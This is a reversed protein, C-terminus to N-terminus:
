YLKMGENSNPYNKWIFKNLIFNIHLLPMNTLWDFDAQEPEPQETGPGGTTTGANGSAM